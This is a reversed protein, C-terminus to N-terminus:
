GLVPLAAVATSESIANCTSIRDASVSVSTSSGLTETRTLSLAVSTCGGVRHELPRLEKSSVWLYRTRNGASDTKRLLLPDPVSDM